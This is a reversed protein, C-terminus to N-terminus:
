LKKLYGELIALEEGIGSAILEKSNMAIKAQISGITKIM